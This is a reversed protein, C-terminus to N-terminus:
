PTSGSVLQADTFKYTSFEFANIVGDLGNFLTLDSLNFNGDFTGATGATGNIGVNSTTGGFATCAKTATGAAPFALAYDVTNTGDVSGANTASFFNLASRDGASNTFVKAGSVLKDLTFTACLTGQAPNLWYPTPVTIIDAEQTVATGSTPLFPGPLTGEVVQINYVDVVGVAAATGHYFIINVTGNSAYNYTVNFSVRYTNDGWSEITYSNIGADGALYSGAATDITINAKFAGGIGYRLSDLGFKVTGDGSIYKLLASVTYTKGTEQTHNNPSYYGSAANEAFTVRTGTQGRLVQAARTPGVNSSWENPATSSTIQSKPVLNTHATEFKIGRYALTSPNYSVRGGCSGVATFHINGDSGIYSCGSTSANSISVRSDLATMLGTSFTPNYGYIPCESTNYITGNSRISCDDNQRITFVGAIDDVRTSPTITLIGAGRDSLKTGYGQGFGTATAAPLSVAVGEQNKFVVVKGGDTSLITDTTGTVVRDPSLSINESPFANLLTGLAIGDVTMNDAIRATSPSLSGSMNPALSATRAHANGCLSILFLAIIIKKM